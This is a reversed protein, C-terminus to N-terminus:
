RLTEAPDIRLARSMPVLAALIAVAVLVVPPISFALLDHEAIGYLLTKIWRALAWSVCLGALTGVVTYRLSSSVVLWALRGRSSGLALRVGLERTRRLVAHSVVGYIGAAALALAFGAFGGVLWAMSRPAEVAGAVVTEMPAIKSVACNACVEKIMGPLHKEFGAPDGGLRAVLSLRQPQSMAQAMPLYVEGDVYKPPGEISFYKVDDVVGVITRWEQIWVPRIRRGIPSRNPWFRRATARSILAVLPAGDRDAATFGRGQLLRIGLTDLHEPTVVSSWLVYQPEQEPRPHDEIAATFFSAEPTLPLANTAAVRLVGPYASLKLRVQECLALTKPLSARASRDPSLEATVVSEVRFGPDARVMTWLSRLLLGAGVLLVTAFAAETMVLLAGTRLGSPGDTTRGGELAALSRQARAKWAPLLGFLLGSGLSLAATFALIRRDIVVEALRPTDAPLLHKLLALQGFALLTGLLGGAAALVIAETLLQRALRAPTAGLSARLTLERQRSATQGIMLNAVNVIAILLVLAVAALLLLSRLRAGRVLYDRLSTLRADTGWADPMRWPFMARIRPMWSELEANAAAPTVGDRLRAFAIVGGSGWYDGVARPDLRMPVWFNVEPSPYQFGPPMVGIIEYPIEDLLFPQGLVESRAAFRQQWFAHSLVVVHTKGPRDEGEAFTRGRQPSVGLVDFFNASVEVGKWREPWDRGTTNFARVGLLAAYSALRSNARMTDFPGRMGVDSADFLRDPAPFPLPRLLVGDILSFVATTSAIGLSMAALAMCSFTRYKLLLRIGFAADQKLQEWGATGRSDRCEERIADLRGMTAAAQRRAQAPPVGRAILEQVESELHGALEADM